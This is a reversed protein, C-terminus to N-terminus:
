ELRKGKLSNESYYSTMQIHGKVSYYTTPTVYCLIIKIKNICKQDIKIEKEKKNNNITYYSTM